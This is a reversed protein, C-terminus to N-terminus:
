HLALGTWRLQLRGSRPAARRAVRVLVVFVVDPRKSSECQPSLWRGDSRHDGASPAGPVAGAAAPAHGRWVLLASNGATKNDPIM